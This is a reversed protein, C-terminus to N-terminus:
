DLREAIRRVRELGLAVRATAVFVRQAREVCQSLRRRGFFDEGAFCYRGRRAHVTDRWRAIAPDQHAAPFPYALDWWVAAGISPAVSPADRLGLRGGSRVFDVADKAREPQTLRRM